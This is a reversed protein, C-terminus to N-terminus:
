FVGILSLRMLTSVNKFEMTGKLEKTVFDNVVFLGLGNDQIKHKTM